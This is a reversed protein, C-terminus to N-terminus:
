STAPSCVGTFCLQPAFRPSVFMESRLTRFDFLGTTVPAEFPGRSEVFIVEQGNSMIPFMGHANRVDENTLPRFDGTGRVESWRLEFEDIGATANQLYRVVTVRLQTESGSVTMMDFVQKVNDVYPDDVVATERSLIDAVTYTAKEVVSQQRFFEYGEYSFLLGTLLLPLIIVAEITGTGHEDSRFHRLLRAIPGPQTM